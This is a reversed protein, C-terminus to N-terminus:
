RSRVQKQGAAESRPLHYYPMTKEPSLQMQLYLVQMLAPYFFSRNAKSLRSDWDNRASAHLFAWDKYGLTIDGFLGMSNRNQQNEGVGPEGTRNSVNYIFPVVIANNLVAFTDILIQTCPTEL